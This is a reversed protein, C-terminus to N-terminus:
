SRDPLLAKHMEQKAEESRQAYMYAAIMIGINELWAPDIDEPTVARKLKQNTMVVACYVLLQKYSEFYEGYADKDFDYHLALTVSGFLHIQKYLETDLGTYKKVPEPGENTNENIPQMTHEKNRTLISRPIM